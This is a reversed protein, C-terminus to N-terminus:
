KIGWDHFPRRSRITSGNIEDAVIRARDETLSGVVNHMQGAEFFLEV